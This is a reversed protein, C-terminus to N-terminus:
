IKVIKYFELCAIHEYSCLWYVSWVLCWLEGLSVLLRMSGNSSYWRDLLWIITTNFGAKTNGLGRLLGILINQSGKFYQHAIAFWLLSTAVALVTSDAKDGGLFPELILNPVAVYFIAIIAM